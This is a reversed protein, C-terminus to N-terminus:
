HLQLWDGGGLMVWCWGGDGGGGGGDGVAVVLMVLVRWVVEIGEVSCPRAMIKLYSVWVAAALWVYASEINDLWCTDSM